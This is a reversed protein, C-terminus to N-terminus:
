LSLGKSRRRRPRSITRKMKLKTKLIKKNRLERRKKSPEMQLFRMKMKMRKLLRSRRARLNSNRLSYM